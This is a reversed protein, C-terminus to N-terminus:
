DREKGGKERREGEDMKEIKKRRKRRRKKGGKRGGRRGEREEEEEERGKKRGEEKQLRTYYLLLCPFSVKVNEVLQDFTPGVM